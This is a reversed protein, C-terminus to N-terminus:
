QYVKGPIMPKLMIPRLITAPVPATPTTVVAVPKVLQDGAVPPLEKLLPRAESPVKVTEPKSKILYGRKMAEKFVRVVQDSGYYYDNNDESFKKASKLLEEFIYDPLREICRNARLVNLMDEKFFPYESTYSWMMEIQYVKLKTNTILAVCYGNTKDNNTKDNNNKYASKPLGAVKVLEAKLHVEIFRNIVEERTFPCSLAMERSKNGHEMAFQLISEAVHVNSQWGYQLNYGAYELALVANGPTIKDWGSRIWQHTDKPFTIVLDPNVAKLM